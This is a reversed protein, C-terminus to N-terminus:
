GSREHGLRINVTDLTSEILRDRISWGTLGAAEMGLLVGGTVPPAALPVFKAGAAAALVSTQMADLLIASSGFVSGVLVVEFVEDEFGLQRIVGIALGALEEGSWQLIERAVADGDQAVQAVQRASDSGFRYWGLALGELLRDMDGAGTSALMMGSLATPSGRRSWEKSVAQVARYVITGAGGYEGMHPGKGTVRGIRGQRDRGWCNEGTGAVVAVGWGESAGALLGIVSDNVVEIPCDLGLGAIAEFTAARESPWDYGAVGFGAGAIDALRLGAQELARGTVARLVERLGDHGVGEPNGPGGAGFGLVRGTDDALIAHSKTGGIDIGLYCTM